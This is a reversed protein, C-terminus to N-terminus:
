DAAARRTGRAHRSYHLEEVGTARARPGSSARGALYASLVVSSRQPGRLVESSRQHGSIVASSWQHGSIVASSWQHGRRPAHMHEGRRGSRRREVPRENGDCVSCSCYTRQHHAVRALASAGLSRSAHYAVQHHREDRASQSQNAAAPMTRWKIIDRMAHQNSSIADQTGGENCASQPELAERM